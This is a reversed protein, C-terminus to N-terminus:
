GTGKATVTKATDTVPQKKGAAIKLSDAIEQQRIRSIDAIKQLSDKIQQQKSM